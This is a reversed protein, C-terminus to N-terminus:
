IRAQWSLPARSAHLCAIVEVVDHRVRFHLGYPFRRFGARRVDGRVRLFQQPNAALRRLLADFEDLFLLGVGPAEADYWDLVAALDAETASTLVVRM